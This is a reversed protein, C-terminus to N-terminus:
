NLTKQESLFNLDKLTITGASFSAATLSDIKGNVADVDLTISFNGDSLGGIRISDVASNRM